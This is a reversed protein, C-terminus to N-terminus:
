ETKLTIKGSKLGKAKAELVIMGETIGTQVIATLQGSFAHMEPLHFVDLCTPDGNAGARYSGAGTVSFTVLCGDNPCLNGDKDVVRVTIYSLDKGDAKLLSRDAILELHHAKGATRVTKEDVSKGNKDYAIVKLEGPEYIVDPWMLRYRHQLSENRKSQKGYSKGNVFLEANDYNTYVFVPVKKGEHGEWNWHPLVHM